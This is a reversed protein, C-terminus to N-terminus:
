SLVTPTGFKATAHPSAGSPWQATRGRECRCLNDHGRCRVVPKAGVRKGLGVNHRHRVPYTRARECGHVCQRTPTSRTHRRGSRTLSGQADRAQVCHQQRPTHCGAYAHSGRREWVRANQHHALAHSCAGPTLATALSRTSPGLSRPLTRRRTRTRTTQYTPSHMPEGGGEQGEALTRPDRTGGDPLALTVPATTPYAAHAEVWRAHTSPDRTGDNPQRTESHARTGSRRGAESRHTVYRTREWDRESRARLTSRM